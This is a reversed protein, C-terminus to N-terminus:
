YFRNTVVILGVREIKDVGILIDIQSLEVWDGRGVKDFGVAEDNKLGYVYFLLLRGPGVSTNSWRNWCGDYFFVVFSVRM